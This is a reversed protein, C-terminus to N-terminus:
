SRPWARRWWGPESPPTSCGWRAASRSLPSCSRCRPRRSCGSALRAIVGTLRMSHEVGFVALAIVGLAGLLLVLRGALRTDSGALGVSLVVATVEGASAGALAIRGVPQTLVGADSLVPVVLGLSTAMLAVGILVAGGVGLAFLVATVAAAGALPSLPCLRM